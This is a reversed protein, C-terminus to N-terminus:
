ELAPRRASTHENSYFEDTKVIDTIITAGARIMASEGIVLGQILTAGVAIHVYDAVKVNGSLTARPAIHVHRGIQCDHDLSAGTNIITNQGITVNPQIIAGAMVQVGEGLKVNSAVIASPHVLTEFLYGKNKYHSFLKDRHHNKPVSIAGVGNILKIAERAYNETLYSDDGLYPIHPFGPVQTEELAIFGLITKGLVSALEVLVAAHGGAGILILPHNM